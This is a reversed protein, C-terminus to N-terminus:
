GNRSTELWCQYDLNARMLNVEFQGPWRSIWMAAFEPVEYPKKPHSKGKLTKEGEEGAEETQSCVTHAAAVPM